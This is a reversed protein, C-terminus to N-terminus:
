TELLLVHERDRTNRTIQGVRGEQEAGVVIDAIFNFDTLSVYIVAKTNIVAPHSTWLLCVVAVIFGNEKHIVYSFFSNNGFKVWVTHLM